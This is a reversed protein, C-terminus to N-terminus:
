SGPRTLGLTDLTAQVAERWVTEGAEVRRWAQRAAAAAGNRDGLAQRTLALNNWAAASDHRQAVQEFAQAAGALDGCAHRSNGTGLGLLLDGPWRAWAQEWGPRAVAPGQNRELTRLAEQVAGPEAATLLREPRTVGLAWHGSRAWTHELTALPWDAAQQRGSNLRVRGRPLDYGVLVAYHWRPWLPLALNLLVLVPVGEALTRLLAPLEGPLVVALAGARSAAVPMEMQLTGGRAPLMLWPALSAPTAACGAAQLVGALTAPGCLDSDDPHFPVDALLVQPPLDAPPAAQLAATMPPTLACGGLPALLGAAAGALLGRRAPVM